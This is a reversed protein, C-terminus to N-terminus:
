SHGVDSSLNAVNIGLKQVAKNWRENIPTDFIVSPDAEITLWTNNTLEKELQGADWGSYGLTVLFKEPQDSTGLIALIDKSTTVSLQYSMELSSAYKDKTIHLVFGRDDSVPGGNLVPQKLSNQHNLPLDRKVEIQELMSELSIDIPQNILLGMAGEEDHECIYVVSRQFFPDKMTPMAVLFHNKLDM